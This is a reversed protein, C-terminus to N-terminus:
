APRYPSLDVTPFRRQTDEFTEATWFPHGPAPFGLVARQAPNLAGLLAALREPTNGLQAWSRWGAWTTSPRQYAIHITHRCGEAATIAAGRHFTRMTYLLTSGAPMAVQHELEFLGPADDRSWSRQHAWPAGDEFGVVATPGMDLTADTLFTISAVQDPDARSPVVLCNNGYDQHMEQDFDGTGAYKHLMESHSLLVDGGLARQAFDVLTPHFVLRDLVECDYPFQVLFTPVPAAGSRVDDFSPVRRALAAQAAAVEGDDLVGHVAAFGHTRWRALDDDSVTRVTAERVNTV